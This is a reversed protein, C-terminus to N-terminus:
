AELGHITFTHGLAEDLELARCVMRGIDSGAVPHITAPQRGLISARNGQAFRALSEMPWTPRIIVWPIGSAKLHEEAQYKADIMPFSRREEAVSPGSILGIREIGLVPALTAV